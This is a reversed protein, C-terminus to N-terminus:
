VPSGGNSQQVQSSRRSVLLLMVVVPALSGVAPQLDGRLLIIQFGAYLPVAAAIFSSQRWRRLYQQESIRTVWGYAFFTIAVALLGGDIFVTAWLSASANIADTRVIVNGTDIPKGPWLARPFYGLVVGLTQEGFTFGEEDVYLQANLEQQFMGFDPSTLLLEKLPAIQTNREDFRFVELLPFAVMVGFILGCLWLRFRRPSFLPWVVALLALAVGGFRYRPSSIPNNVLLNAGVLGILVMRARASSVTCSRQGQSGAPTRELVLLLYLALFAPAWVLTVELLGLAKNGGQDLRMGASPRGYVAEAVTYRSSVLVGIGYSWLAFLAGVAGFAAVLWVRRLKIQRSGSWRLLKRGSIAPYALLGVEYTILGVIITLLAEIQHGESFSQNAIPFRQEVTQALAALGFWIYVFVWFTAQVLKPKGRILLGTIRFSAWQIVLLSLLVPADFVSDADLETFVLPFGVGLLLLLILPSWGPATRYGRRRGNLAVRSRAEDIRGDPPTM